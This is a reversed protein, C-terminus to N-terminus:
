SIETSTLCDILPVRGAVRLDCALALELGGGLAYGDIAAITPMPLLAINNMLNQLRHVFHGVETNSMQAREKLDAGACFVGKIQSKFLVVRVSKDQCLEEVAEELQTVFVNGLSNRAHPRNMLVATIGSNDGQLHQIQIEAAGCNGSYRRRGVVLSTVGRWASCLEEMALSSVANQLNMVKGFRMFGIKGRGVLCGLSVFSRMATVSMQFSCM